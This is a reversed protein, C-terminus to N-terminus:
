GALKGGPSHPLACDLPERAKMAQDTDGKADVQSVSLQIRECDVQKKLRARETRLEQFEREAQQRRNQQQNLVEVSAVVSVGASPAPLWNKSQQKSPQEM